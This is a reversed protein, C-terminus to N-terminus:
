RVGRPAVQNIQNVSFGRCLHSVHTESTERVNHLIERRYLTADLLQPFFSFLLIFVSNIPWALIRGSEGGGATQHRTLQPGRTARQLVRQCDHASPLGAAVAGLGQIPHAPNFNCAKAM